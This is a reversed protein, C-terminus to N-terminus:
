IRLLGSTFVGQDCDGWSKAHFNRRKISAIYFLGIIVVSTEVLPSNLYYLSSLYSWILACGEGHADWVTIANSACLHVRELFIFYLNLKALLNSSIIIVGSWFYLSIIITKLYKCNAIWGSERHSKMNVCFDFAAISAHKSVSCLLFFCGGRIHVGSGFFECCFCIVMGDLTFGLINVVWFECCFCIVMQEALQVLGVWEFQFGVLSQPVGWFGLVWYVDRWRAVEVLFLVRFIKAEKKIGIGYFDFREGRNEKHLNRLLSM